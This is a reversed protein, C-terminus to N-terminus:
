PLAPALNGIPKVPSLTAVMEDLAAGLASRAAEVREGERDYPGKADKLAQERRNLEAPDVEERLQGEEPPVFESSGVTRRLVDRADTYRKVVDSNRTLPESFVTTRDTMFQRIENQLRLRQSEDLLMFVQSDFQATVALMGNKAGGFEMLMETFPNVSDFLSYKHGLINKSGFDLSFYGASPFAIQKVRLVTQELVYRRNVALTVERERELQALQNTMETLRVNAAAGERELVSVKQTLEVEEERRQNVEELLSRLLKQQESIDQKLSARETKLDTTQETLFKSQTELLSVDNQKQELQQQEQQLRKSLGDNDATLQRNEQRIELNEIIPDLTVWAIVWLGISAIAAIVSGSASFVDAISARPRGSELGTRQAATERVRAAERAAAIAEARAKDEPSGGLNQDAM